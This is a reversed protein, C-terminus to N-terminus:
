QTVQIDINQFSSFITVFSFASTEHLFLALLASASILLAL